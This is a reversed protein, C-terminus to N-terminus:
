LPECAATWGVVYLVPEVLTVIGEESSNAAMTVTCKENGDGIIKSGGREHVKEFELFKAVHDDQVAQVRHNQVHNQRFEPRADM